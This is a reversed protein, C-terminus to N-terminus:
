THHLGAVMLPQSGDHGHLRCGGCESTSHEPECTKCGDLYSLGALLDAELRELKRRQERIEALKNEFLVRVRNMAAGAVREEELAHLFAQIESLSVDADQLRSIWEVRSVASSSYLRFGGKTRHVPKLLGLEEYLHMARVSKGCLEALQGVRLLKEEDPKDRTEDL